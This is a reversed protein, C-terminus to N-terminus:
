FDDELIFNRMTFFAIADDFWTRESALRQEAVNRQKRQDLYQRKRHFDEPVIRDIHRFPVYAARGDELERGKSQM